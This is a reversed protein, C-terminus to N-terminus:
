EEINLGRLGDDEGTRLYAGFAKQHPADADAASALAPRRANMLQSKRDLMNLREEQKSLQESIDGAFGALATKLEDAVTQPQPVAESGRSKTEPRSMM